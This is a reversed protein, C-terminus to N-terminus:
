KIVLFNQHLLNATCVRLKLADVNLFLSILSMEGRPNVAAGDSSMCLGVVSVM